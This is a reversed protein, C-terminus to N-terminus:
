SAQIQTDYYNESVGIMQDCIGTAVEEARAYGSPLRCEQEHRHKVWPSSNNGNPRPKAPPAIIRRTAASNIGTLTALQEFDSLAHPNM